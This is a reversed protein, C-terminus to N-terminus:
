KPAKQVPPQAEPVAQVQSVPGHASQTKHPGHPGIRCILPAIPHFSWIALM